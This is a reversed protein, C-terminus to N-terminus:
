WFKDRNENTRWEKQSPSSKRYRWTMAEHLIKTVATIASTNRMYAIIRKNLVNQLINSVVSFRLAIAKKSHSMSQLLSFDEMNGYLPSFLYKEHEERRTYLFVFRIPM